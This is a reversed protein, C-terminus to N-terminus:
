CNLLGNDDMSWRITIEDGKRLTEGRELHSQGKIVFSGVFLNLDPEPVGPAQQYLEIASEVVKVSINQTAPIGAASAHARVITLVTSSDVVPAGFSDYVTVRCPNDGRSSLPIEIALDPALAIIGSSWGDRTDM